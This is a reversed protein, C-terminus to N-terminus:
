SMLGRPPLRGNSTRIEGVARDWGAIRQPGSPYTELGERRMLRSLRAMTVLVGRCLQSTPRYLRKTAHRLVAVVDEDAADQKPVPGAAWVESQALNLVAGILQPLRHAAGSCGCALCVGSFAM